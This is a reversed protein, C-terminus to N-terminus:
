GTSHRLMCHVSQLAKEFEAIAHDYDKLSLDISGIYYHSDADQPDVDAAHQFAKLAGEQNGSDFLALGLSYWIRPNAPDLLSASKLAEEAEPLRRLYILAIGKNILPIASSADARHAGEFQILAKGPLQQNM